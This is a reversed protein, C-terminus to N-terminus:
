NSFLFDGNKDIRRRVPRSISQTQGAQTQNIQNPNEVGALGPPGMYLTMVRNVYNMTERIRPITNNSRRVTGIGANYAALALPIDNNLQGLLSKFYRVGARVNQEPDFPETVDFMDATAPMLQMLGMAGASSVADPRFDSEAKIICKILRGSIGEETSIREILECFQSSLNLSARTPTTRPTARQRPASYSFTITGDAEVKRKVSAEIESFSFLLVAIIVYHFGYKKLTIM